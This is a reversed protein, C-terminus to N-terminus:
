YTGAPLVGWGVLHVGPIEVPGSFTIVTKRNWDDARARPTLIAGTLALGIVVSTATRIVTMQKKEKKDATFRHSFLMRLDMPFYFSWRRATILANLLFGEAAVSRKEHRLPYTQM